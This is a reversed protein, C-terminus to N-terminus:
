GNSEEEEILAHLVKLHYLMISEGVARVAKGEQISKRKHEQDAISAIDILNNLLTLAEEKNKM